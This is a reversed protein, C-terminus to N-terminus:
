KKTIDIITEHHFLQIVIKPSISRYNHRDRIVALLVIATLDPLLVLVRQYYDIRCLRYQGFPYNILMCIERYKGETGYLVHCRTDATYNSRFVLIQVIHHRPVPVM